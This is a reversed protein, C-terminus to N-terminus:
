SSYELKGFSVMMTIGKFSTFPEPPYLAASNSIHRIFPIAYASVLWRKVNVRSLHVVAVRLSAGGLVNPSPHLEKQSLSPATDRRQCHSAQCTDGRVGQTDVFAFGLFGAERAPLLHLSSM